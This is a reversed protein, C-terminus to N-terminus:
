IGFERHMYRSITDTVSDNGWGFVYFKNIPSHNAMIPSFESLRRPIGKWMMLIQDESHNVPIHAAHVMIDHEPIGAVSAMEKSMRRQEDENMRAMRLRAAPDQVERDPYAEFLRKPLCRARLRNMLLSAVGESDCIRDTISQDDLGTYTEIFEPSDMRLSDADLINEDVAAKLAAVCTNNAALITHHEYVQAHMLYRGMRYGEAAGWGKIDICLRREGSGGTTVTTNILQDLEFRGYSVGLHYSDRCLYDMRDVDLPGSVIDAALISDRIDWGPVPQRQLICSVKKAMPGLADLISPEHLIIHQSVSEHSYEQGNVQQIVPEFFHSFPGHGIDHLLGALRVADTVEANLGLRDAVRGALHCVGLSHEFRTHHASPYVAYAWGLQRIRHLRRFAAADIVEIETENLSVFGYLPDHVSKSVM